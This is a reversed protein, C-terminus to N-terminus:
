QPANMAHLAGDGGVVILLGNLALVRFHQISAFAPMAAHPGPSGSPQALAVTTSTPETNDGSALPITLLGSSTATVVKGGLIIPAATTSVADSDPPQPQDVISRWHLAGTATDFALISGEATNRALGVTGDTATFVLSQNKLRPDASGLDTATGLTKAAARMMANGITECLVTKGSVAMSNCRSSLAGTKAGTAENFAALGSATDAYVTGDVATTAEYRNERLSVMSEGNGGLPQSWALKTGDFGAGNLTFDCGMGSHRHCLSFYLRNGDAVPDDTLLVDKGYSVSALVRGNALDQIRLNGTSDVSAVRNGDIAPSVGDEPILPLGDNAYPQTLSAPDAPLDVRWRQKGTATDLAQLSGDVLRCVLTGEGLSCGTPQDALYTSWPHFGTPLRTQATTFDRNGGPGGVEKVGTLTLTAPKETPTSVSTTPKASGALGSEHGLRPVVALGAVLVLASVGAVVLIRRRRRDPVPPPMAAVAAQASDRSDEILNVIQPPWTAGSALESLTRALEAPEPRDEPARRLCAAVIDRLAAPVADLDPEENVTRYLLAFEGGEGYPGTGTAAYVLVAGLSFVDSAPVVQGAAGAVQEPPMYGASGIGIQTGATANGDAEMARAIGFDILKPGDASLVLNSPKLDRHLLGCGHVALLASALGAGVEAVVAVPLPGCAGVAQGLTPGPVFETGLWPIDGQASGGILRAVYPNEVSRVAEIEQRFRERMTLSSLLDPRITKVAALTGDEALGLLVDGMAGGGLRKVVRFPGVREQQGVGM